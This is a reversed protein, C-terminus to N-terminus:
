RFNFPLVNQLLSLPSSDMGNWMELAKIQSAASPLAIRIANVEGAETTWPEGWEAAIKRCCAGILRVVPGQGSSFARDSGDLALQLAISPNEEHLLIARYLQILPWPHGEGVFWDPEASLYATKSSDDGRHVLWRLLLHHAYRSAPSSDTALKNAVTPLYGIVSQVAGRVEKDSFIPEDMMSIAKHCSTQITEKQRILPDSLQDFAAIAEVFFAVAEPNRGLFAAHQGLSSKIQGWYQLGPVAVPLDGWKELSASAGAFEYRNTRAVALHLDAHCVMPANEEVLHSSLSTIKSELATETAGTHNTHALKVTLWCLEMLPPIVTESSQHTQLWDIALWLKELDVPGMSMQRRCENLYGEWLTANKSAEEGVLNLFNFTLSSPIQSEPLIDWWMEPPLAVGQTFNDWLSLLHDSDIELLCNSLLQSQHLRAKSTKMTGAWTYAVADVYGNFPSGSKTITRITLEIKSARNPYAIALRRMIQREVLDWTMGHPFRGRQEILIEVKTPGDVPLLRLVWDMTLATGDMWREGPTVPLCNISVGFIGVEADLVAQFVQNIEDIEECETAHWDKPLPKLPATETPMVLAVFKGKKSNARENADSGFESGTEDILITWKPAPNLGRIDSAHLGTPIDISGHREVLAKGAFSSKVTKNQRPKAFIIEMGKRTRVQDQASRNRRKEAKQISKRFKWGWHSFDRYVRTKIKKPIQGDQVMCKVAEKELSRYERGKQIAREVDSGADPFAEIVAEKAENLNREGAAGSWTAFEEVRQLRKQLEETEPQSPSCTEVATRNKASNGLDDEPEIPSGLAYDITKDLDSLHQPLNSMNLILILFM